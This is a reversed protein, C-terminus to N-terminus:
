RFMSQLRQLSVPLVTPKPQPPLRSAKAKMDGSYAAIAGPTLGGWVREQYVALAHLAHCMPGIKWDKKPEDELADALFKVAKVTKPHYLVKQDATSVLFELMHGTTRLKREVDWGDEPKEFWATSFSGDRNQLESFMQQQHLRFIRNAKVYAGDLGGTERMREQCAYGLAFLRHTGGCAEGQIPQAAEEEVLRHLSWSEGDDSTWTADTELYHAMAILVFTLETKTKCARKESEILDAITFQRDDLSIPTSRPLRAQAMVALYQSAHGQMGKGQLAVLRGRDTAVMVQGNCRGGRDLWAFSGVLDGEGAGQRIKAGAGWTLSWHMVEWPNHELTNLPRRRYIDMVRGIQHRLADFEYGSPPPAATATTAPATLDPPLPAAPPAANGARASTMSGALTAFLLLGAFFRQM